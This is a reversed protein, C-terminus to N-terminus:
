SNDRQRGLRRVVLGSGLLLSGAVVAIGLQLGTFPLAGTTAKVISPAKASATAGATITVNKTKTVQSVQNDYQDSRPGASAVSAFALMLALSVLFGVITRM